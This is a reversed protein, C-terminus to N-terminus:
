ILKGSRNIGLIMDVPMNNMEIGDHIVKEGIKFKFM